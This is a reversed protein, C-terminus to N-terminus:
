RYSLKDLIWWSAGALAASAPLTIVWAQLMSGVTKWQVARQNRCLGVGTIAGASVHTTSVPLGWRSAFAVLFSTVLNASLGEVANMATIKEALTKTVRQGAALSGIGMALAVVVFLFTSDRHLILTLGLGLAVIKPADNLGRAFSTLGSSLWHLGDGLAIGAVATSRARCNDLHDVVVRMTPLGVDGVVIGTLAAAVATQVPRAEACACRRNLPAFVSRLAPFLLWLAALSILPSFLLPLLIKHGLSAWLVGQWGFAVIAAGCLAGTIAHTTSVPLGARTAFLIWGIAGILVALPFADSLQVHPNIVGKSFTAVLAKSFIGAVLSGAVTWAAGWFMARRHNAVGSGVLTAIGKSVDNSGNAYALAAVALFLLVGIVFTM